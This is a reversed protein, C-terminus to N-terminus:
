PAESEPLAPLPHWHTVVSDNRSTKEWGNIFDYHAVDMYWGGLCFRAVILDDSCKGGEIFPPPLTAPDDTIRTWESKSM